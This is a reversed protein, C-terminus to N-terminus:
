KERRQSTFATHETAIILENRSSGSQPDARAPTPPPPPSCLVGAPLHEPPGQWEAPTATGMWGDAREPAVSIRLAM